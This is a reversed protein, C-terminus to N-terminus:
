ASQKHVAFGCCPRRFLPTAPPNGEAPMPDPPRRNKMPPGIMRSSRGETARLLKRSPGKPSGRRTAASSSRVTEVGPGRNAAISSPWQGPAANPELIEVQKGLAETWPPPGSTLTKGRATSDCAWRRLGSKRPPPSASRQSAFEYAAQEDGQGQFICDWQRNMCPKYLKRRDKRAKRGGFCGTAGAATVETSGAGKEM